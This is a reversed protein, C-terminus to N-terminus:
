APRTFVGRDSLALNFEGIEFIEVRIARWGM